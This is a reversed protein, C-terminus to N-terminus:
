HCIPLSREAQCRGALLEKLHADIFATDAANQGACSMHGWYSPIEVLRGCKLHQLEDENDAARFYLDTMCPMLLTRAEIAALARPLDGGFVVNASIDNHIWTWTMAMINNADRQEYLADWYGVLYDDLSSFGLAEDTRPTPGAPTSSAGLPGCARSRRSTTSATGLRPVMDPYLARGM